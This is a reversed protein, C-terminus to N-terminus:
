STHKRCSFYDENINRRKMTKIMIPFFGLFSEFFTNPLAGHHILYNLHNNFDFFADTEKSVSAKRKFFYLYFILSRAAIKM